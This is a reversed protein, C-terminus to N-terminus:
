LDLKNWTVVEDRAIVKKTCLGLVSSYFRPPIGNGPRKITVMDETLAAGRPIDRTAVLSKRLFERMGVEEPYPVKAGSGLSRELDRVRTVLETFEDPELSIRHEPGALSHRLTLHKEVACAGLAVAGVAAITGLTHDSFGIPLGFTERLMPIARVNAKALEAPYLCASHLLCLGSGRPTRFLKVADRIEEITGMGTSIFAPLHSALVGELLPLNTLEGSSIKLAPVGMKLCFALCEADYPAPVFEVGQAEAFKRLSRIDDFSLELRRLQALQGGPKSGAKHHPPSLATRAALTEARFVPFQVADAGAKKAAAVMQKAVTLRGNHNVGAGAVLFAPHGIGVTRSGVKFFSPQM